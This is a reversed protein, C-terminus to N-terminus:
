VTIKQSLMQKIIRINRNADRICQWAFLRQEENVAIHVLDEAVSLMQMEHTYRTILEADSYTQDSM